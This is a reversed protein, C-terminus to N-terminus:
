RDTLAGDVIEDRVLLNGGLAYAASDKNGHRLQVSKGASIM